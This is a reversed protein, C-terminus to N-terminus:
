STGDSRRGGGDGYENFAGAKGYEAMTKEVGDKRVKDRFFQCITKTPDEPHKNMGFYCFKTCKWSVSLEPIKTNRIEEFKSRIISETFELDSRDFCLTFPGGDNIYVITMFVEEAKPFLHCAAYHYLCLQPDYRLEKYTKKEATNKAWDKRQGTKWDIVEILGPDDEVVLDMTGKLGLQGTIREGNLEYDYSAWPKDILFDFKQEPEIINRRRPDFMGNNFTLAADTWVICDRLDGSYWEHHPSLGVYYDYSRRTAWEPTADSAKVFGLNEDEYSGDGGAQQAKRIRAVVELAKHVVNGKDAKKGSPPRFGMIYELMYKHPCM